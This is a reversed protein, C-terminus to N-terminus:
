ARSVLSRLWRILRVGAAAGVLLGILAVFLGVIAAKSGFATIVVDIGAMGGLVGLVAAAVLSALSWLNVGLERTISQTRARMEPPRWLELLLWGLGNAAIAALCIWRIATMEGTGREALWSNISYQAQTDAGQWMFAAVVAIVAPLLQLTRSTAEAVIGSVGLVALAAAVIVLWVGEGGEYAAYHTPRGVAEGAAWPAFTSALYGAAALVLLIRPLNRRVDERAV